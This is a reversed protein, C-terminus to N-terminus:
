MTLGYLQMLIPHIGLHVTTMIEAPTVRGNIDDKLQLLNAELSDINSTTNNDPTVNNQGQQAMPTANNNDSSTENDSITLPKLVDNFLQLTTNNALYQASQYAEVNVITATMNSMSSTANATLTMTNNSSSNGSMQMGEMGALNSMDTLDFPAGTANGYNSLVVNVLDALAMAWTTANNQQESEVRVTVAEALIDNLSVVTQNISQIRDQPIQGQSASPFATVNGELQELGTELSDAIRNNVERIEDLTSNNLLSSAKDAHAQALTVNNNNDLNM